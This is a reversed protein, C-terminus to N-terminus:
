SPNQCNKNTGLASHRGNGMVFLSELDVMGEYHLLHQRGQYGTDPLDHVSDPKSRPLSSSFAPLVFQIM